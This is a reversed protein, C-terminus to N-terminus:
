SSILIACFVAAVGCTGHFACIVLSIVRVLTWIKIGLRSRGFATAVMHDHRRRSSHICHSLINTLLQVPSTSPVNVRKDVNENRINKTSKVHNEKHHEQVKKAFATTRSLTWELKMHAM